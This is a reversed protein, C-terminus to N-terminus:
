HFNANFIFHNVKKIKGNQEYLSSYYMYGTNLYREEKWSEAKYGANSDTVIKYYDEIIQKKKNHNIMFIFGEDEFDTLYGILQNIINLKDNNWWGKFEVIIPISLKDDQIKLDIRGNGKEPEAEVSSYIPSLMVKFMDRFPHEHNVGNRINAICQLKKDESQLVKISQIFYDIFSKSNSEDIQLKTLYNDKESEWFLKQLEEVDEFGEDNFLSEKRIRNLHDNSIELAKKTELGKLKDSIEKLGEKFLLKTMEGVQFFSLGNEFVFAKQFFLIALKEKTINRLVSRNDHILQAFQNGSFIYLTQFEMRSQFCNKKEDECENDIQTECDEHISAPLKQKWIKFLTDELPKLKRRRLLKQFYEYPFSIGKDKLYNATEDPLKITVSNKLEEPNLRIGHAKNFLKEKTM